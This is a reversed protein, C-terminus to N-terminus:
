SGPPAKSCGTLVAPNVARRKGSQAVFGARARWRRACLGGTNALLGRRGGKMTLVVKSLPVDPLRSFAIRLRGRSSDIRGSLGLDVEGHLAVALDPLRNDSERLFARGSLPRDLLPTWATVRGYAAGVPCRDAAFKRRSCVKGIRRSDLLESGPLAIGVRRLNADGPRTRVVARLRPHSGRGTRGLLRVAVRPRFGLGACGGVQFRESAPAVTGTASTLSARVAAATCSTPNRVFGARDITLDIARYPIPIGGLIQPLPELRIEAQATAPDIALAARSVITGLDFPGAQAPVAIVLSFPAGNYPGALSVSSSRGGIAPIRVPTTGAGAALDVSGIRSAAPCTGTAIRGEPCPTVAGFNASLGSPLTLSFASLNQEGDSSTLKLVFPSAAGARATTTGASFRPAFAPPACDRDLVFRSEGSLPFGGSSPTLRYGIGHAGCAPPSVLPGRPGGRFHLELHSIPLQPLDGISTTLRGTVSDAELRITQKVLIGLKPNEFVVYVALQSDVPNEAGPRGTAPDDPQAVFLSGAVPEELLPSEVEATGIKSAEPCGARPTSGLTERSYDAPTCAVLGGAVSANVTMGQPLALAAKSLDARAIGVPSVLGEDPADLSFDLGSAARATATTPQISVAPDFALEDCGSLGLPPQPKTELIAPPTWVGPHQWSDAKFVTILSGGCSRPLTLFPSGAPSGHVTLVSGFFSDVQSLNALSVILSHPPNPDIAVRMRVEVGFVSFGLQAASGYPPVMNYLTFEEGDTKAADTSLKVKGVAAAAPCDEINPVDEPCRSLLTPTGVLGTPLSIHLDKLDQEPVRRGGSDLKTNLGLEVTWAFPHSGARTAPSGDEETFSVGLEKFGFDAKASPTALMLAIIAALASLFALRCGAVGDLRLRRHVRQAYTASLM